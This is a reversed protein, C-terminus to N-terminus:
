VNPGGLNTLVIQVIYYFYVTKLCLNYNSLYNLM